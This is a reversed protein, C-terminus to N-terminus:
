TGCVACSGRISVGVYVLAREGLPSRDFLTGFVDVVAALSTVPLGSGPDGALVQNGQLHRHLALAAGGADGLKRLFAGAFHADRARAAEAPIVRRQAAGDGGVVSRLVGIV